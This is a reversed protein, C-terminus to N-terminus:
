QEEFENLVDILRKNYEILVAIQKYSTQLKEISDFYEAM